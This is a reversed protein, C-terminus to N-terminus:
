HQTHMREEPRMTTTHEKLLLRVLILCEQCNCTSDAQELVASRQFLLMAETCISVNAMRM